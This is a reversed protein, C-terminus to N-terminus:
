VNKLLSHQEPHVCVFDDYVGQLRYFIHRDTEFTIIFGMSELLHINDTEKAIHFPRAPAWELSCLDLWHRAAKPSKMYLERFCLECCKKYM